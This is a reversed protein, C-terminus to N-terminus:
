LMELGSEAPTQVNVPSQNTNTLLNRVDLLMARTRTPSVKWSDGFVPVVWKDGDGAERAACLNRSGDGRNPFVGRRGLLMTASRLASKIKISPPMMDRRLHEETWLGADVMAVYIESPTVWIVGDTGTRRAYMGGWTEGYKRVLLDALEDARESDVDVRSRATSIYEALKDGNPLKALVGQQWDSFRDPSNIQSKNDENLLALVDAIVAYRNKRLFEAMRSNWPVGRKPTGMMIPIFRTAMDESARGGNMTVIVTVTNPRIMLGRYVAWGGISEATILSEIGTGEVKGRQNDFIVSRAMATPSSMWNKLLQDWPVGSDSILHAGGWVQGIVSATVTKGSGCQAADLMFAPRTGVPGGWGMTMVLAKLLGQDLDSAANFMSVFESLASGTADPLKCPLYFTGRMPKHHPLESVDNYRGPLNEVLYRFYEGKSIPSVTDRTGPKKAHADAGVWHLDTVGHLWSFMATENELYAVRAKPGYEAEIDTLVFIKGGVVKPWGNTIRLMLDMIQGPDRYEYLTKTKGKETDEVLRAVVNSLLGRNTTPREYVPDNTDEPGASYPEPDVYERDKGGGSDRTEVRGGIREIFSDDKVEPPKAPTRSRSYASKVTTRVEAESMGCRLGADILLREAEGQSVGLGMMDCAAAFCSANRHGENAGTALFLLSARSLRDRVDVVKASDRPMAEALSRQEEAEQPFLSLAFKAGVNGNVIECLANNRGEKVNRTGPLRLIREPNCVKLDSGVTKAIGRQVRRWLSLDDCAADLVWIAHYGGGTFNLLTPSPLGAASIRQVVDDENAIGDFDAFVSRAVAVNEDGRLGHGKRPNMGVYVNETNATITALVQEVQWEAATMWESKRSPIWRVEVMDSPDFITAFFTRADHITGM